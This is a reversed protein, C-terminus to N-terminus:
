VSYVMKYGSMTQTRIIAVGEVVGEWGGKMSKVPHTLFMGDDLLKQVYPWVENAFQRDGPQAERGYVGDLAVKRGFMTLGMAFSPKVTPRTVTVAERYPELSVYRGGARGIANYCM